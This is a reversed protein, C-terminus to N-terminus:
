RIHQAIPTQRAAAGAARGSSASRLPIEERCKQGQKQGPPGAHPESSRPPHAWASGGQSPLAEAPNLRPKAPLLSNRHSGTSAVLKRSRACLDLQIWCGWPEQQSLQNGHVAFAARPCLLSTDWCWRMSTLTCCKCRPDTKPGPYLWLPQGSRPKGRPWALSQLM